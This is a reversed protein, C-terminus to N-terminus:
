CSNGEHDAIPMGSVDPHVTSPFCSIPGFLGRFNGLMVSTERRPRWGLHCHQVLIIMLTHLAMYITSVNWSALGKSCKSFDYHDKKCWQLLSMEAMGPLADAEDRGVCRLPSNLSGLPLVAQLCLCHSLVWPHRHSPSLVPFPCQHLQSSLIFPSSSSLLKDTNSDSLDDSAHGSCGGTKQM